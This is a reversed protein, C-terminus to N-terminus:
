LILNLYREKPAKMIVVKKHYAVKRAEKLAALPDKASAVVERYDLTVALFLQKGVYSGFISDFDIIDERDARGLVSGLFSPKEPTVVTM